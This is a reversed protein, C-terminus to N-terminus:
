EVTVPSEVYLSFLSLDFYRDQVLMDFEQASVGISNTVFRNTHLLDVFSQYNIKDQHKRVEKICYVTRDLIQGLKLRRQAIIQNEEDTLERKSKKLSEVNTKGKKFDSVAKMKEVSSADFDIMDLCGGYMLRDNNMIIRHSNSSSFIEKSYDDAELQVNYGDEGMEFIPLTKIVKRLASMIDIGEHDAVQRAADLIMPAIKDDRTGDISISIIHGIKESNGATLARSMRQITAGMDGNDYTLLVVNIEPISFSRQCMQSAIIWVQKNNQEAIRIKDNVFQEADENKVVDGNIVYVDYFDGLIAKAISELHHMQKNEMSVFQMVSKVDGEICNALSFDNANMIPSTGMFSRYLGSWFGQNKKVDKSAKSFAPNFKVEHGDLLSVFRSWDNRYFRVKALYTEFKHARKFQKVIENKIKAKTGALMLMDLYTFRLFADLNDHLGKARESNTGTTLIVPAGQSIRNVFPVCSETHAGYDAEDIVTIKDTFQEIFQANQNRVTVDVEKDGCLSALVVIKKGDSLGQNFDVQFTDSKLELVVFNSFENYRSVEKKFSSLATLYYTGVVMIKHKLALFMALYLLTKGFRAALEAMIKKKSEGLFSFTQDMAELQWITLSLDLKKVNNGLYDRWIQEPNNNPFVAWEKSTRSELITGLTCKKQNHLKLLIRQDESKQKALDSPIWGVILYDERESATRQEHVRDAAHKETQGCKYENKLFSSLKAFQYFGCPYKDALDKIEQDLYLVGKKHSPIAHSIMQHWILIDNALNTMNTMHNITVFYDYCM